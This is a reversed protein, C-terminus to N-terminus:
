HKPRQVRIDNTQNTRGNAVEGPLIGCSADRKKRFHVHMKTGFPRPLSNLTVVLNATTETSSDRATKTGFIRIKEAVHYSDHM